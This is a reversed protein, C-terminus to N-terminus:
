VYTLILPWNEREIIEVTNNSNYFGLISDFFTLNNNELKYFTNSVYNNPKPRYLKIM